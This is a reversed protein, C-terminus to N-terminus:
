IWGKKRFILYPLIASIVMVGLAFPYGWEQNLEPMVQFNMGYISAVVTPPLFIVAAISFIKIIQNQEINIMGLVADLLFAVKGDLFNAHDGLSQVDRGIGKVHASLTEIGQNKIREQFYVILRNLTTLSERTKAVVEGNQGTERLLEKLRNNQQSAKEAQTEPHFVQGSLRDCEAGVRELIDALRDVISDLLGSLAHSATKALAPRRRIHKAFLQFPQNDVFRVTVLTKARLVFTVPSTRITEARDSNSLVTATLFLADGEAYLRSTSEIEEMEPRTPLDIGLKENWFDIEEETPQFLDIWLEEGGPDHGDIEEAPIPQGTSLAHVTYM